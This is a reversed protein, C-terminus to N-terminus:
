KRQGSPPDGPFARNARSDYLEDIAARAYDCEACEAGIGWVIIRKIGNDRYTRVVKTNSICNTKTYEGSAKDKDCWNCGEEGEQACYAGVAAGDSPDVNKNTCAGDPIDGGRNEEYDKCKPNGFQNRTIIGLAAIDEVPRPHLFDGWVGKFYTDVADDKVSCRCGPGLWWGNGSCDPFCGTEGPYIMIGYNDLRADKWATYLSRNADKIGGLTACTLYKGSDLHSKIDKFKPYITEEAEESIWEKSKEPEMDMDMGDFVTNQNLNGAIREAPYKLFGKYLWADEGKYDLAENVGGVSFLLKKHGQNKSRWHEKIYRGYELYYPAFSNEDFAQKKGYLATNSPFAICVVNALDLVKHYINTRARM